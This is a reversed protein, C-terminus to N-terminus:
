NANNAEVKNLIEKSTRNKFKYKSTRKKCIFSIFFSNM